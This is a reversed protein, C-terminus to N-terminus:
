DMAPSRFNSAPVIRTLMKVNSLNVGGTFRTLNEFANQGAFNRTATFPFTTFINQNINVMWPDYTRSYGARVVLKDGGTLFGIVGKENTRPNWNLVVRPM